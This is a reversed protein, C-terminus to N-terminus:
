RDPSWAPVVGKIVDAYAHQWFNVRAVVGHLPDDSPPVGKLLAEFNAQSLDACAQGEPVRQASYYALAFGANNPHTLLLQALVYADQLAINVGQGLFPVMAHAADGILVAQDALHYANMRVTVIPAATGAAIQAADFFRHLRPIAAVIHEGITGADQWQADLAEPLVLTGRLGGDYQPMAVVFWAGCPWIHIARLHATVVGPRLHIERYVQDAARKVLDIAPARAIVNRIESAVGDAGVVLSTTEQWVHNRADELVLSRERWQYELCTVGTHIRVGQSEAWQWIAQSLVQRDIAYNCWHPRAYPQFTSKTQEYFVRGRMAVGLNRVMTGIGGADLAALGRPSLSLSITRGDGAHQQTRKEYITVSLGAQALLGGLLCGAPGAGIIVIRQM